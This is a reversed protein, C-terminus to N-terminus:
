VKLSKRTVERYGAAKMTVKWSPPHLGMIMKLPIKDPKRQPGIGVWRNCPNPVNCIHNSITTENETRETGQKALLQFFYPLSFYRHPSPHRPVPLFSLSLSLILSAAFPFWFSCIVSFFMSSLMILCYWPQEGFQRDVSPGLISQTRFTAHPLSCQSSVTDNGLSEATEWNGQLSTLLSM